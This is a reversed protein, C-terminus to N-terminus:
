KEAGFRVSSHVNSFDPVSAFRVSGTGEQEKSSHNTVSVPLMTVARVAESGHQGSMRNPFPAPMHGFVVAGSRGWQFSCSHPM